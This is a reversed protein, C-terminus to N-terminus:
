SKKVSKKTIKQPPKGSRYSQKREYYDKWFDKNKFMKLPYKISNHQYKLEVADTLNFGSEHCFAILYWFIDATEKKIDDLNKRSMDRGFTGDEFDWQFHELLEAAEIVISKANNQPMQHWGRLHNFEEIKKVLVDLSKKKM